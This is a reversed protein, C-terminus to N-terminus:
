KSMIEYMAIGSAVSVNLSKKQGRMPIDIFIDCKQLTELDIGEPENGLVLALPFIPQFEKYDISKETQELAVIQFGRKKLDQFVLNIDEMKSWKVYDQAGLATKILAREPKTTFPRSGDPPTPTYGTLYIHSAGCGDATRFIAGVNHASRVNHLILCFEKSM